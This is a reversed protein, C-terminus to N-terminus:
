YLFQTTVFVMFIDSVLCVILTDGRIFSSKKIVLALISFLHLAFVICIFYFSVIELNYIEDEYQDIFARFRDDFILLLILLPVLLFYAVCSIFSIRAVQRIRYAVIDEEKMLAQKSETSQDM